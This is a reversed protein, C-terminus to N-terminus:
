IWLQEGTFNPLHPILSIWNWLSYHLANAHGLFDVSDHYGCSKYFYFFNLTINLTVLKHFYFFRWWGKMGKAIGHPTNLEYIKLTFHKQHQYSSVGWPIPSPIIINVLLPLESWHSFQHKITYQVPPLIQSKPHIWPKRSPVTFCSGSPLLSKTGGLFM